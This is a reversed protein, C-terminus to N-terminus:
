RACVKTSACTHGNSSLHGSTQKYMHSYLFLMSQKKKGGDLDMESLLSHHESTTSGAHVQAEDFM